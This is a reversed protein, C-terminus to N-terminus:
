LGLMRIAAFLSILPHVLNVLLYKIVDSCVTVFIIFWVSQRKRANLDPLLVRDVYFLALWTFIVIVAVWAQKRLPFM